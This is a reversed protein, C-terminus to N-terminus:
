KGIEPAKSIRTGEICVSLVNILSRSVNPEKWDAVSVILWCPSSAAFCTLGAISTWSSFSEVVDGVGGTAPYVSWLRKSFLNFPAKPYKIRSTCKTTIIWYTNFTQCFYAIMNPGQLIMAIHYHYRSSAGHFQNIWDIFEYGSFCSEPCVLTPM